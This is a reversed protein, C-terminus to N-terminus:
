IFFFCKLGQGSDELPRYTRSFFPTKVLSSRKEHSLDALEQVGIAPEPDLDEDTAYNVLMEARKRRLPLAPIPDTSFGSSSSEESGTIPELNGLMKLRDSERRRDRM